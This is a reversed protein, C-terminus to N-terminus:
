ANYFRNIAEKLVVFNNSKSISNPLKGLPKAEMKYFKSDNFDFNQHVRERLAINTGTVSQTRGWEDILPNSLFFENGRSLKDIVVNGWDGTLVDPQYSNENFSSDYNMCIYTDGVDINEHYFGLRDLVDETKNEFLYNTADIEMQDAVFVWSKNRGLRTIFITKYKGNENFDKLYRSMENPDIQEYSPNKIPNKNPKVVFMMYTYFNYIRSYDHPASCCICPFYPIPSLKSQALSFRIQPPLGSPFTLLNVKISYSELICQRLGHILTNMNLDETNLKNISSKIDIGMCILLRLANVNKSERLEVLFENIKIDNHDKLLNPALKSQVYSYVSNLPM